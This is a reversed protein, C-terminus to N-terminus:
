LAMGEKREWVNGVHERIAKLPNAKFQPHGMVARFREMEARLEGRKPPRSVEVKRARAKRDEAMIEDLSTGLSLLSM